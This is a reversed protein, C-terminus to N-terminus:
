QCHTQYIGSIIQSIPADGITKRFFLNEIVDAPVIKASAMSLYLKNLRCQQLPYAASVYRSLMEQTGEHLTRITTVEKLVPKKDNKSELDFVPKFLVTARMCSYEHSDVQLRQFNRIADVMNKADDVLNEPKEGRNWEVFATILPDVEFPPLWQAAGLIFMEHWSERLLILQDEPPLQIFTPMSRTIKINLFVLSAASECIAEPNSMPILTPVPLPIRSLLQPPCFFFSTPVQLSRLSRDMDEPPGSTSSIRSSSLDLCPSVSSSESPEKLYLSMQRQLTSNRPGREHQVADKNMGEQICKRLRCARCQNRHTKDVVCNGQVKGKCTYSRNRRISRKFFGACGDCAFIGYHKGSSNDQCVKCAVDYLIRRKEQSIIGDKKKKKEDKVM